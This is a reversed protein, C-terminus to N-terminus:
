LHSHSLPYGRQKYHRYRERGLKRSREDPRVVELLYEFRAFFWPVAIGINVLTYHSGDPEHRNGIVIDDDQVRLVHGDGDHKDALAYPIGDSGNGREIHASLALSETEDVTHIYMGGNGIAARARRCVMDFLSSDSSEESLLLFEIRTM